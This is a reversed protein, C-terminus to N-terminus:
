GAIPSNTLLGAYPLTEGTTRERLWDRHKGSIKNPKHGGMQGPAVSGTERSAGYGIATNFGVRMVHQVRCMGERQNRQSRQDLANCNSM